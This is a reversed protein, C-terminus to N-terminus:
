TSVLNNNFLTKCLHRVEHDVLVYIACLNLKLM